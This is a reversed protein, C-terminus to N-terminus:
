GIVGTELHDSTTCQEIGFHCKEVYIYLQNLSAFEANLDTLFHGQFKFTELPRRLELISAPASKNVTENTKAQNPQLGTGSCNIIHVFIESDGSLLSM